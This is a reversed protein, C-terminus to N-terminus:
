APPRGTGDTKGYYHHKVVTPSSSSEDEVEYNSTKDSSGANVREHSVNVVGLLRHNELNIRKAHAQLTRSIMVFALFIISLTRM